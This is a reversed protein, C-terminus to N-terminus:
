RSLVRFVIFCFLAAIWFPVNAIVDGLQLVVRLFIFAADSAQAQNVAFDAALVTHIQQYYIRAIAYM